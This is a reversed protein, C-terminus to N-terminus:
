YASVAPGISTLKSNAEARTIAQSTLQDVTVVGNRIGDLIGIAKAAWPNQLKWAKLAALAKKVDESTKPDALLSDFGEELNM